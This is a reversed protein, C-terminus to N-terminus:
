RKKPKKQDPSDADLARATLIRIAESRSPVPSQSNRWADVRDVLTIPAVIQVRVTDAGAELKPRAM